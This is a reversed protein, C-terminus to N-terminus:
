NPQSTLRPISEEAEWLAKLINNLFIKRFQLCLGVSHNGFAALTLIIIAVPFSVTEYFRKESTSDDRWSTGRLKSNWRSQSLLSKHVSTLHSKWGKRIVSANDSTSGGRKRNQSTVYTLLSNIDTNESELSKLSNSMKLLFP